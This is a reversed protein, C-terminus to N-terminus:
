FSTDYRGTRARFRRRGWPALRDENRGLNEPRSTTTDMVIAAKLTNRMVALAGAYEASEAGNVIRRLAAMCCEKFLQAYAAGGYPYVVSASLENMLLVPKFYVVMESDPKPWVLLEWRQGVTAATSTHVQRPRIAALEPTGASNDGVRRQRIVSETTLKLDCNWTDPAFTMVGEIGGVYDPLQYNGSAISFLKGSGSPATGTYAIIAVTSSTVSIIEYDSNDEISITAGVMSDVFPTCLSATVTRVGATAGSITVTAPTDADEEVDAWLTFAITPKLWSWQHRAAEPDIPEPYYYLRQGERLAQTIVAAQDTTWNSITRTYGAEFGLAERIETWGIALSAEAM